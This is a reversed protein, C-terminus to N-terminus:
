ARTDCAEKQIRAGGRESPPCAQRPPSTQWTAQPSNDLVDRLWDVVDSKRDFYAPLNRQQHACVSSRFEADFLLRETLSAAEQATAAVLTFDGTVFPNRGPKIGIPPLDLAVVPVGLLAAEFALTSTRTLVVDVNQLLRFNDARVLVTLAKAGSYRAIQQGVEDPWGPHMKLVTWVKPLRGLAACAELAALESAAPHSFASVPPNPQFAYLVLKHDPPIGHQRRWSPDPQSGNAPVHQEYLPETLVRIRAPEVGLDETFWPAWKQSWVSVYDSIPSVFHPYFGVAGHQQTLCRIGLQRAALALARQQGQFDQLVVLLRAKMAELYRFALAEWDFAKSLQSRLWPGTESQVLQALGNVGARAVAADFAAALRQLDREPIVASAPGPPVFILGIRSPRGLAFGAFQALAGDALVRVRLASRQLIRRVLPLTRGSAVIAVEPRPRSLLAGASHLYGQLTCAWSYVRERNWFYNWIIM